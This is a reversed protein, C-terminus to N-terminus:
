IFKLFLVASEANPVSARAAHIRNQLEQWACLTKKDTQKKSKAKIANTKLVIYNPAYWSQTSPIDTRTRSQQHISQLIKKQSPGARQAAKIVQIIDENVGVEWLHVQDEHRV